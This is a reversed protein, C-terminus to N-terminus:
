HREFTFDHVGGNHEGFVLIYSSALGKGEYEVEKEDCQM